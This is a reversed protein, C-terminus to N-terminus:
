VIRKFKKEIEYKSMSIITPRGHPCNYPNELELLKDILACMEEKSLKNNGKVAAKCAMSAIKQEITLSAKNEDECLEDLISVFLSHENQGYLDMPVCRLAYENGGFEEINFGLSSFTDWHEKLVSEEKASLSVVIPPNLNQSILEKEQFKKMFEEYKVKEHAAHQDIIYLKDKFAVLWYTDFLQGLISYEEKAEKTLLKEEFFNMQMPKEVIIHDRAKIINNSVKPENKILLRAIDEGLVQNEEWKQLKEQLNGYKESNESYKSTEEAVKLNELRKEEFPEPMVMSKYDIKDDEKEVLSVDPILESERLVQYVANRIDDYFAKEETIRVDMKTPHVNVDVREPKTQIHLVTFPFKHQMLFEKYGDEIASYILKSKIYRGNLFYNEFGRSGRNLVPKGIYGTIHMNESKYDVPLLADATDKGYIRYVIEKLDGNGSTHFKVDKGNIFKFSVNPNSLAMHEVLDAIYAGETIPSNLFKKRAPVNYFLNRVIMTTGNPAGVESFDVQRAGELVYRTGLLSDKTKTVLEVKGVASISSLAEGRFGLTQVFQLDDATEIKSTAHRLFANKVDANDIGIGNDTIRIYDIGGNKIEITLATAGADISNEVLEKVVSAPKEVVEGAAIKDITKYDLLHIVAM